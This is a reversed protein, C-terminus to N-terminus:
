VKSFAASLHKGLGQDFSVLLNTGFNTRDKSRENQTRPPHGKSSLAKPLDLPPLSQNFASNADLKKIESTSSSM